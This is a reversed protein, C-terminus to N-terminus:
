NYLTSKIDEASAVSTQCEEVTVRYSVLTLHFKFHAALTKLM